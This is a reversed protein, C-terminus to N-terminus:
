KNHSQQRPLTNNNIKNQLTLLDTRTSTHQQLYFYYCFFILPLSFFYAPICSLLKPFHLHPSTLGSLVIQGPSRQPSIHGSLQLCNYSALPPQHDVTYAQFGQCQQFRLNVTSYKITSKRVMIRRRNVQNQYRRYISKNTYKGVAVIRTHVTYSM